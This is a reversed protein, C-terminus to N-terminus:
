QQRRANKREKDDLEAMRPTNVIWQQFTYGLEWHFFSSSPFFTTGREQRKIVAKKCKQTTLTNSKFNSEEEWFNEGTTKLIRVAATLSQTFMGQM